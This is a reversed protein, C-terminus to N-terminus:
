TESIGIISFPINIMSLQTHLADTHKSLSGIDTHYVSIKKQNLHLKNYENKRYYKSNIANIVNEDIDFDNLNPLNVLKSRTEFSPLTELRSPLDIGYLDLLELKSLLGFPFIEADSKIKCVLCSWPISGDEEVLKQFKRDSLGECSKHVRLGCNYCHISKQNKDVSKDCIGCPFKFKRKPKAKKSVIQSNLKTVINNVIDFLDLSDDPLTTIKPAEQPKSHVPPM